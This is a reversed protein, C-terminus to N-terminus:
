TAGGLLYMKFEAGQRPYFKINKKVYTKLSLAPMNTLILLLILRKLPGKICFFLMLNVMIKAEDSQM